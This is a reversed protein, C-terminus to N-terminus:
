EGLLGTAYPQLHGTAALKEAEMQLLWGSATFQQVAMTQEYRQMDNPCAWEYAPPVGNLFCIYRTVFEPAPASGPGRDALQQALEENSPSCATICEGRSNAAVEVWQRTCLSKAAAAAKKKLWEIHIKAMQARAKSERACHADIAREAQAARDSQRKGYAELANFARYFSRETTTKYRLFNSYQKHHDATWYMADPPLCSESEDLRKQNRQLLWHARATEFVLTAATPNEQPQYANMWSQLTFDWEAPDEFPLVIKESRCGHTLRNMSSNAKGDPSRPGTSRGPRHPPYPSIEGDSNETQDPNPM